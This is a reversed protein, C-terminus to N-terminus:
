WLGDGVRSGIEMWGLSVHHSTVGGFMQAGRHRTQHGVIVRQLPLAQSCVVVHYNSGNNLIFCLNEESSTLTLEERILVEPADAM